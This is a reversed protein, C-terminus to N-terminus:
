AAARMLWLTVVLLNWAAHALFTGGYASLPSREYGKLFWLALLGFGLARSLSGLDAGHILWGVFSMTGVFLLGRVLSRGALKQGFFSFILTELLPSLIVGSMIWTSASSLSPTAEPKPPSFDMLMAVTAGLGIVALAIAFGM